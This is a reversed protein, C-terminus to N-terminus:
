VFSNNLIEGLGGGGPVIYQNDTLGKEEALFTGPISNLVKESSLGRDLRVAFIELGPHEAKVRKIYEPTIILHIAVFKKPTGAVHEKYHDIAHCITGGTAGMPDPFLVISDDIAGGIKSGTIDVGVVQDNIDTRRNCIFHDQRINEPTMLYNLANYCIHSPLTGARALNVAVVRTNPDIIEGGYIAEKFMSHMRTPIEVQLRPFLKNIVKQILGSYLMEVFHNVLPQVTDQHCLKALISLDYPDSLIHVGDGYGHSIEVSQYSLDKHQIDKAM